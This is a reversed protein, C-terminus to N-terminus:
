TEKVYEIFLSDEDKLVWPCDTPEVTYVFKNGLTRVAKVTRGPFAVGYTNIFVVRDGVKFKPKM